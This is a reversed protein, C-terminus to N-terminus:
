RVTSGASGAAAALNTTAEVRFRDVAALTDRLDTFAARLADAPPAQVGPGAGGSPGPGAASLQAAAAADLATIRDLVLQEHAGAASAAVAARLVRLTGTRALEVGRVLELNNRRVVELALYGQTTVALHTLVDQHRRRVATLAERRLGDADEPRGEASLADARASLARDLATALTAYESLKALAAGAEAKETEIVANDRRLEDQGSVLARLIDDLRDQADRFRQFYRDFLDAKGAGGAARSGRFLRRLGGGTAPDLDEVVARLAALAATVQTTPDAGGATARALLRSGARSGARLDAQGMTEIDAVKAAFAPSRVGAALLEDVFMRARDQLQATVDAGVPLLGAAQEPSVVPVTEPASLGAPDGGRGSADPPPALLNDLRPEAV